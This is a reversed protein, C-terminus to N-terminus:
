ISTFQEKKVASNHHSLLVHKLTTALITFLRKVTVAIGFTRPNDPNFEDSHRTIKM